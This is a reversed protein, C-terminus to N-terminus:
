GAQDCCGTKPPIPRSRTALNKKPIVRSKPFTCDDKTSILPM